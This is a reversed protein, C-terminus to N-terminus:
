RDWKEMSSAFTHIIFNALCGISRELGLIVVGSPVPIGFGQFSDMKVLGPAPGGTLWDLLQRRSSHM